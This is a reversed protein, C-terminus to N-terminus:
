IVTRVAEVADEKKSLDLHNISPVLEPDKLLTMVRYREYEYTSM